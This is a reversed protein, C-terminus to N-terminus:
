RRKKGEPGGPAEEERTSAGGRWGRVGGLHVCAALVLGPWAVCWALPLVHVRRGWAVHAAAADGLACARARGDRAGRVVDRRAPGAGRRAHAGGEVM